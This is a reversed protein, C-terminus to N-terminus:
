PRPSGGIRRGSVRPVVETRHRARHVDDLTGVRSEDHAVVAQPEIGGKGRRERVEVHLQVVPLM